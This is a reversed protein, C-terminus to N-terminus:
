TGFAVSSNHSAHNWEPGAATLVGNEISFNGGILRDPNATHNICYISWDDLNEDFDELWVIDSPSYLVVEDLTTTELETDPICGPAAILTLLVIVSITTFCRSFEGM